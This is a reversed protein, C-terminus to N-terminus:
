VAAYGGRSGGGQVTSLVRRIWDKFLYPVDRITDGHPLLDWGRAGYRNYNLWSGFILYTATSLFAIIIFWTFFGWGPKKEAPPDPNNIADECAHKTRWEMRLTDDSDGHDVRIFKLSPEKSVDKEPEGEKKDDGEARKLKEVYKDEPIPLNETGELNKDCIFEVITKQPRKKKDVMKFGGNMTLRLGEKKSDTNSGDTALLAWKADMNGGGKEKLEGAYPIIEGIIEDGTEKNQDREIACVRTGGPCTQASDRKLPKCIDITYTINRYSAGRDQPDIASRPGGLKSFDFEKKDVITKGCTIGGTAAALLPFLFASLLAAEASSRPLRM